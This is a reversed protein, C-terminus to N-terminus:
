SQQQCQSITNLSSEAKAVRKKYDIYSVKEKPLKSKEKYIPLKSSISKLIKDRTAYKMSCFPSISNSGYPIYDFLDLIYSALYVHEFAALLKDIDNEFLYFYSDYYDGVRPEIYLNNLELAASIKLDKSDDGLIELLIPVYETLSTNRKYSFYAERVREYGVKEFFIVVKKYNLEKIRKDYFKNLCEVGGEHQDCNRSRKKIWKRQNNILERSANIGLFSKVEFYLSSMKSDRESLDPNACITLEIEQEAKVCDFGAAFLDSNIALLLCCLFKKNMYNSGSISTFSVGTAHALLAAVLGARLANM